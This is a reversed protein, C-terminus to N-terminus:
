RKGGPRAEHNKRFVGVGSSSKGTLWSHHRYQEVDPEDYGHRQASRQDSFKERFVGSSVCLKGTRSPGCRHHQPRRRTNAKDEVQEAVDLSRQLWDLAEKYNAQSRRAMGINHLTRTTMAKDNAIVKLSLHKQFMEVAQPYEARSFHVIAKANIAFALIPEDNIKQAMSQLLDLGVFAKAFERQRMLGEVQTRLARLLDVNQLEQEAELLVLRDQETKASMLSSALEEETSGYRWLKWQGDERVFRLSRNARGFGTAPQGSKVDTARLDVTVRVVSQEGEVTVRRIELSALQIPGVEAFKQKTATTFAALEPAKASWLAVLKEVNKEQSVEFFNRSLDRLVSTDDPAQASVAQCCLLLGFVTVVISGSKRHQM